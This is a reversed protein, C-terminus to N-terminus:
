RMLLSDFEEPSLSDGTRSSSCCQAIVQRVSGNYPIDTSDSRRHRASHVQNLMSKEVKLDLAHLAAKVSFYDLIGDGDALLANRVALIEEADEKTPRAFRRTLTGM